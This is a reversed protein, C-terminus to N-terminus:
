DDAVVRRAEPQHRTPLLLSIATLPCRAVCWWLSAAAPSPERECTRVNVCWGSAFLGFMVGFPVNHHFALFLHCRFYSIPCIPFFAFLSFKSVFIDYATQISNERNQHTQGTKQHAKSSPRGCRLLDSVHIHTCVMRIRFFIDCGTGGSAGARFFRLTM